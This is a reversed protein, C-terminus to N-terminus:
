RAWAGISGHATTDLQGISAKIIRSARLVGAKTLALMARSVPFLHRSDNHMHQHGAPLNQAFRGQLIIYRVLPLSVRHLRASVGILIIQCRFFIM